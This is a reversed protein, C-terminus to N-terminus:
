CSGIENNTKDNTVITELILIIFIVWHFFPMCSSLTLLSNYLMYFLPMLICHSSRRRNGQPVMQLTAVLEHRDRNTSSHKCYLVRM